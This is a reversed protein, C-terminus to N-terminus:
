GAILVNTEVKIDFFTSTTFLCCRCFQARKVDIVNEVLRFSVTCMARPRKLHTHSQRNEFQATMKKVLLHGFRATFHIEM